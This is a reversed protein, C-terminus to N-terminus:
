AYQIRLVDAPSGARRDAYLFPALGRPRAKKHSAADRLKAGVNLRCLTM